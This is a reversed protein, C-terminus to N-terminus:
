HAAELGLRDGEDVAVGLGAGGQGGAQPAQGLHMRGKVPLGERDGRRRATPAPHLAGRRGRGRGRGNAGALGGVQRPELPQPRGQAVPRAHLGEAGALEGPGPIALAGVALGLGPQGLGQRRPAGAERRQGVGRTEPPQEGGGLHTPGLGRTSCAPAPRAGIHRPDHGRDVPAEAM